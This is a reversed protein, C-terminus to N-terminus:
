RKGGGGSQSLFLLAAAAGAVLVWNPVSGIGTESFWATWDTGAPNTANSPLPGSPAAVVNSGAAQTDPLAQVSPLSVPTVPLVPAVVPGVVPRQVPPTVPPAVRSPAAPVPTDTAPNLVGGAAYPNGGAFPNAKCDAGMVGGPIDGALIQETGCQISLGPVSISLGAPGAADAALVSGGDPLRIWNADPIGSGQLNGPPQAKYVSGGLLGAIQASTADDLYLDSPLLETKGPEYAPQWTQNTLYSPHVQNAVLAAAYGSVDVAGLGKNFTIM